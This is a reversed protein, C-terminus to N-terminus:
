CPKVESILSQVKKTSLEALDAIVLDAEWLIEAPSTTTVALCKMGANRAGQVGHVADEIVLCHEPSTGVLRAAKLFVDPKPKGPLEAGSVIADFYPRIGLDDVVANINELPASSAVAQKMGWKKFQELWREVGPLLEIRGAVLDNFLTEKRDIVEIMFEKKYRDGLLYQMANLSNMGFTTKIQEDTLPVNFEDFAKQWTKAHLDWTDVLVGDMDWLIAYQKNNKSM